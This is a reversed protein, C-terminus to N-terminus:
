LSTWGLFNKYGTIDRANIDLFSYIIASIREMLNMTHTYEEDEHDESISQVHHGKLFALFLLGSWVGWFIKHNALIKM